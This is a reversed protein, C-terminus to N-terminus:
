SLDAAEHPWTVTVELGGESRATAAVVAGHARAIAQVIALGLGTGGTERARSRDGRTFRAFLRDVDNAEIPTGDNAITLRREGADASLEVRLLGGDRNYHVANEVLNAVLRGMLVRDGTVELEDGVVEVRLDRSETESLLEALADEILPRLSVREDHDPGADARALILLRDILEESRVVARRLVAVSEAREAESAEPDAVDLETRMITLPTRLEHAANSVFERQADFAHQLRDLMVNFQEALERLEDNPGGLEIRRDLQQDSIERVTESIGHVPRLMRGAVFWGLGVSAVSMLGLALSSQVLLERLTEDRLEVAISEFLEGFGFGRGRARDGRLEPPPPFLERGPDLVEVPLGLREVAAVRVEDRDVPFNRQVLFYNIALLMFGAVLFLGGYWLTLRLRISWRPRRLM